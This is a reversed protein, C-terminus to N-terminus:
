SAELLVLLVGREGLTVDFTIAAGDRSSPVETLGGAGVLLVRAPRDSVWAEDALAVRSVRPATGSPAWAAVLRRTASVDYARVELPGTATITPAPRAPLPSDGLFDALTPMADDISLCGAGLDADCEVDAGWVFLHAERPTHAHRRWFDLAPLYARLAAALGAGQRAANVGVEETMWLARVAGADPTLWRAAFADLTTAAEPSPMTYHITVTDVLDAVRRGALSPAADGGVTRQLLVEVFSERAVMNVVSGLGVRVADPRGFYAQSRARLAEAGPALFRDVYAPVFQEELECRDTGGDTVWQCVAGYFREPNQIENGFQFVVREEWGPVGADHLAAVRRGLAESFAQRGAATQMADFFTPGQNAGGVLVVASQGQRLVGVLAPLNDELFPALGDDSWGGDFVLHVGGRTGGPERLGGRAWPRATYHAGLWANWPLGGEGADSPLLGADAPLLGADSLPGADGPTPASGGDDAGGDPTLGVPPPMCASVALLLAALHRNM